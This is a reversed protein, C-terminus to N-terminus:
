VNLARIGENEAFVSGDNLARLFKNVVPRGKTTLTTKAFEFNNTLDHFKDMTPAIAEDGQSLMQKMTNRVKVLSGAEAKTAGEQFTKPSITDDVFSVFSVDSVFVISINSM